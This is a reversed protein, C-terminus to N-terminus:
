HHFGSKDIIIKNEINFNDIRYIDKDNTWFHDNRFSNKKYIMFHVYIYEEMTKANLISYKDYHWTASDHKFTLGDPYLIPTTHQEVFYLKRYKFMVLSNIWPMIHYYIVWADRWNFLKRIIKSYVKIIYKSEPYIIQSLEVEDMGVYEPNALKSKWNQITMCLNRYKENNRFLSLHGSLRDAHTSFVNYKGLLDDTYFKSIRGWILDVDGFGWFDYDVLLDQHIYGYFVKLDCLKYAKVPKFDINLRESVFMCYDDFSMPYFRVNPYRKEPLQCDTFFIFDITNNQGCSFFHLDIWEPWKGFYPTIIAVKQNM